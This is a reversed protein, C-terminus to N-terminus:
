AEMGENMRYDPCGEFVPVPGVRTQRYPLETGPPFCRMLIPPQRAPPARPSLADLTAFCFLAGILVFPLAMVALFGLLVGGRDNM